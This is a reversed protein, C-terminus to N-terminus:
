KCISPPCFVEGERSPISIEGLGIGTPTFYRAENDPIIGWSGIEIKDTKGWSTLVMTFPRLRGNVLANQIDITSIELGNRYMVVQTVAVQGNQEEVGVVVKHPLILKRMANIESNEDKKLVVELVGRTSAEVMYRTRLYLAHNLFFPSFNTQQLEEFLPLSLKRSRNPDIDALIGAQGTAMKDLEQLFWSQILFKNGGDFSIYVFMTAEKNSSQSKHLLMVPRKVGNRHYWGNAIETCDECPTIDNEWLRELINDSFGFARQSM